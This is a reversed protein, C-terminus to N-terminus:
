SQHITEYETPSTPIQMLVDGDGTAEALQEAVEPPVDIEPTEADHWMMHRAKRWNRDSVSVDADARKERYEVFMWKDWEESYNFTYIQHVIEESTSDRAEIDLSLETAMVETDSEQMTGLETLM